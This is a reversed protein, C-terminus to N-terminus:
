LDKAPFKRLETYVTGKSSLESRYLKIENVEFESSYKRLDATMTSIESVDVPMDVRALTLHPKFPHDQNYEKIDRLAGYIKKHLESLEQSEKVGLWVISPKRDIYFYGTGGVTLNFKEFEVSALADITKDPDTEGLFLLTLHMSEPHVARVGRIRSLHVCAYTMASKVEVPLDIAVFLRENSKKMQQQNYYSAPLGDRAIPLDLGSTQKKLQLSKHISKRTLM